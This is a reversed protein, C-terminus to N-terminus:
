YGSTHLSCSDALRKLAPLAELPPATWVIRQAIERWLPNVRAMPTIPTRSAYGKNEHILKMIRAVIEPNQLVQDM